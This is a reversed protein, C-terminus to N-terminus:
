SRAPTSRRRRPRRRAPGPWRRGASRSPAGSRRPRRGPRQALLQHPEVGAELHRLERVLPREVLDLGALQGAGLQRDGLQREGRLRCAVASNTAWTSPGACRDGVGALPAGVGPALESRRCARCACRRRCRRPGACCRRRAPARGGWPARCRSWWRRELVQGPVSGAVPGAGAPVSPPHGVRDEDGPEGAEQAGPQEGADEPARRLGPRGAEDLGLELPQGLLPDLRQLGRVGAQGPPDVEHGAVEGGPPEADLAAVREGGADGLDPVEGRHVVQADGAFTPSRTLTSPM